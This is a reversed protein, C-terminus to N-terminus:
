ACVGQSACCVREEAISAEHARVVKLGVGAQEWWWVSCEHQCQCNRVDLVQALCLFRITCDEWRPKVQLSHPLSIFLNAERQRM